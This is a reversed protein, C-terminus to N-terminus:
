SPDGPMRRLGLAILGWTLTCLGGGFTLNTTSEAFGQLLSEELPLEPRLAPAHVATVGLAVFFGTISTFVLTWTLARLVSLRRADARYAFRVANWLIAIGLAAIVWMNFGGARMYELM